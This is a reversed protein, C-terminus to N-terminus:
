KVERKWAPDEKWNNTFGLLNIEINPYEDFLATIREIFRNSPNISELLRQIITVICYFTTQFDPPLGNNFKYEKRQPILPQNATLRRNCLRSHHACINRVITLSTFWSSLISTPVGFEKAIEQKEVGNKLGTYLQSLKGFTLIEMAMNSPPMPEEDYTRIFNKLFLDQPNEFIKIIENNVYKFIDLDAYFERKIYWFFGHNIVYKDTLRARLAIEIRELYELILNRLKKDFQYLTIIEDFTVNENFIHDDGSQLHFMYGTLRFYGVNKLYRAARDQDAIHLGRDILLSIHQEVTFPEKTYYM